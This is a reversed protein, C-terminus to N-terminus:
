AADSYEGRTQIYTHLYCIFSRCPQALVDHEGSGGSVEIHFGGQGVSRNLYSNGRAEKIYTHIYTHIYAHIHQIQVMICSRCRTYKKNPWISATQPRDRSRPVPLTHRWIALLAGCVHAQRRCSDFIAAGSRDSIHFSRKQMISSSGNKEM